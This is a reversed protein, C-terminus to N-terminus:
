YSPQALDYDLARVLIEKAELGAPEFVTRWVEVRVLTVPRGAHVESDAIGRAIERLLRESPLTKARMALVALNGPVRIRESRDQSEVTVRLRRLPGSDTSAFM